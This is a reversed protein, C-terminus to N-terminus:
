DDTTKTYQLYIWDCWGTEGSSWTKDTTKFGFDFSMKEISDSWYHIYGWKISKVNYQQLWNSALNNPNGNVPFVRDYVPKGDTWVGIKRETNSYGSAIGGNVWKQNTADYILIQGDSINTLDVDSLGSLTSSGGGGGGKHEYQSTM